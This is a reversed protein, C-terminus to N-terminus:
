IDCRSFVDFAHIDFPSITMTCYGTCVDITLAKGESPAASQKNSDCSSNATSPALKVM